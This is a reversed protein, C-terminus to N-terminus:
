SSSTLCALYHEWQQTHPIHAAGEIVCLTSGAIGKHLDDVYSRPVVGDDAGWIIKTPVKLQALKADTFYPLLGSALVRGMPATDKMKLLTDIAWDPTPANPGHVAHLIRIATERDEAFLPVGPVRGLGGGSELVLREVRDPHELTYLVDVWAGMSSGVLVIKGPAEKEIVAHLGAIMLPMSIPGEKPASEGHGPLDLAIVRNEAALKPAIAAWTGAHDNAGHVLVYTAKPKKPVAVFYVTGDLERRELGAAVLAARAKAIFELHQPVDAAPM